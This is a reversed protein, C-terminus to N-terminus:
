PENGTSDPLLPLSGGYGVSARRASGRAIRGAVVHPIAPWNSQLKAADSNSLGAIPVHAALVIRDFTVTRGNVRLSPSEANEVESHEFIQGGHEAVACALAALYRGAHFRGQREFVAAPGGIFPMDDVFSADFGLDIALSAEQEFAKPGGDPETDGDVAHLYGPVYQFDCDIQETWSARSASSRPSGRTRVSRARDRGSRVPQEITSREGNTLHASTHSSDSPSAGASCPWQIAASRSSIRATLGTIGAGIVVIEVRIAISGPFRRPEPTDSWFPTM